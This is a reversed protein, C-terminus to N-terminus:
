VILWKKETENHNGQERVFKKIEKLSWAQGKGGRGRMGSILYRTLNISPDEHLQVLSAISRYGTLELAKATTILRVTEGSM